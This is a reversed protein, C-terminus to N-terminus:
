INLRIKRSVLTEDSLSGSESGSLSLLIFFCGSVASLLAIPCGSHELIAECMKICECIHCHESECEHETMSCIYLSSLVTLLLLFACVSGSVFRIRNKPIFGPM